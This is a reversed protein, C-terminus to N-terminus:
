RCSAAASCGCGARPGRRPPTTERRGRGPGCQKDTCTVLRRRSSRKRSGGLLVSPDVFGHLHVRADLGNAILAPHDAPVPPDHHDAGIRAVLLSLASDAILAQASSCITANRSLDCSLSSIGTGSLPYAAQSSRKRSSRSGRYTRCPPRVGVCDPVSQSWVEAYFFSCQRIARSTPTSRGRSLRM